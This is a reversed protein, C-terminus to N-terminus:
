LDLFVDPWNVAGHEAQEDMWVVVDAVRHAAIGFAAAAARRLADPAGSSLFAWTAPMHACLHSASLIRRPLLDAPM